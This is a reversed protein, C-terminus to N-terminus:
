KWITITQGDGVTVVRGDNLIELQTIKHNEISKQCEYSDMDFVKLSNDFVILHGNPLEKIISASSNLDIIKEINSDTRIIIKNNGDNIPIGMTDYSGSAIIGNSLICFSTIGGNHESFIKKCENTNIDWIRLTGDVSSSVITNEDLIQLDKIHRTHGELVGLSIGTHLDWIRIKYEKHIYNGSSCIIKNKGVIISGVGGLNGSIILNCKGTDPNWVRVKPDPNYSEGTIILNSFICMSEITNDHQLTYECKGTSTNWIKVTNDFSLSALRNNELIKIIRIIGRHGKLFLTIKRTKLDWIYMRNKNNLCTLLRGDKLPVILHNGREFPEELTFDVKGEFRYDYKKILSDFPLKTDM